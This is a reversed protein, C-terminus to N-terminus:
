EVAKEEEKEEEFTDGVFEVVRFIKRVRDKPFHANAQKWRPPPRGAAITLHTYRNKM